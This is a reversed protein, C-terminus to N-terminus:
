ESESPDGNILKAGLPLLVKSPDNDFYKPRASLSASFFLGIFLGFPIGTILRMIANSEYSTILQIGGDLGMPIISMGAFLWVAISRRGRIYISEYFISPFISIVSDTITWRNLGRRYWILSGVFFGFFIGVDRVCVPMQNGNLEWSREYKQHCNLDGFGYIFASYINLDSWAFKGGHEEQNHGVSKGDQTQVNGWSDETMYDIYNARGSLEPVSGTPLTYPVIFFSFLFFGSISMMWYSIKLERKRDPLGNELLKDGSM